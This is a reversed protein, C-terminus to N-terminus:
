SSPSTPENIGFGLSKIQEQTDKILAKMDSMNNPLSAGIRSNVSAGLSMGNGVFAALRM